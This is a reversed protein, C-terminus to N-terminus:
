ALNLNRATNDLREGQAGVRGMTGTLTEVAGLGMAISRDLSSEAEQNTRKIENKTDEVEREQREEETLERDDGYGGYSDSGTTASSGYRNDADKQREEQQHQVRDRAGSLLDDRQTEYDRM